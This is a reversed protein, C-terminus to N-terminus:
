KQGFRYAFGSSIRVGLLPSPSHGVAMVDAEVARFVLGGKLRIDVGAGASWLSRWETSPRSSVTVATRHAGGLLHAFGSLHFTEHSYVRPGIMITTFTFSDSSSSASHRGFDAVLGVFPAPKWVGGLRFGAASRTNGTGEQPFTNSAVASALAYIEGSQTVAEQAFASSALFFAFLLIGFRVMKQEGKGELRLRHKLGILRLRCPAASVSHCVKDNPCM